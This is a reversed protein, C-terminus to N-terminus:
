TSGHSPQASQRSARSAWAKVAEASWFRTRRSIDIIPKPFGPRTVIAERTHKPQVGLYEAIKAVGWREPAQDKM